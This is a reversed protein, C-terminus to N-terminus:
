TANLTRSVPLILNFTAGHGEESEVWLLGGHQVVIERSIYLGLGSGSIMQAASGRYFREFIHGQDTRSIGSGQDTISVMVLPGEAVKALQAQQAEVLGPAVSTELEALSPAPKITVEIPSGAPSYRLANVLLNSVVQRLRNADASLAVEEYASNYNINANNHQTPVAEIEEQVLSVLETESRFLRFSGKDIQNVEVMDEILALAQNAKLLSVQQARQSLSFDGKAIRKLSLQNNGRIVALANKLDHAVIAIFNERVDAEIRAAEAQALEQTLEEQHLSYGLRLSVFNIFSLDDENFAQPRTSALSIVGHSQQEVQLPVILLSKVGLKEVQDAQDTTALQESLFPQGTLYVEGLRGATALPLHDLGLQAQLQSLATNTTGLTVLEGTEQSYLMIDVKEADCALGINDAISCCMEELSTAPNTSTKSIFRLLAILQNRRNQRKLIQRNELALSILDALVSLFPLIQNVPLNIRPSESQETTVLPPTLAPQSDNPKELRDIIVLTGTVTSGRLIPVAIQTLMTDDENAQLLTSRLARTTAANTATVPLVQPRGRRVVWSELSQPSAILPPVLGTQDSAAKLQLVQGEEAEKLFIYARDIELLECTRRVILQLIEDLNNGNAIANSISEFDDNVAVQARDADM